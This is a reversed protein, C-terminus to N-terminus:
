RPRRLGQAPFHYDVIVRASYDARYVIFGALDDDVTKHPHHASTDPICHIFSNPSFTAAAGPEWSHRSGHHPVQVTGVDAWRMPGFHAQMEALTPMDVRLDGLLLMGAQEDILADHSLPSCCFHRDRFIGCPEVDSVLPRVLLCLSINNRQQSSKGFHKVYIARLADRWRRRPPQSLDHLRYSRMVVEVDAQVISTSKGSRRAVLVGASDRRFLDPQTSNYFMFEVPLGPAATPAAHSWLLMRPARSGGPTSVSKTLNFSSEGNDQDRDHPPRPDDTPGAPFPEPGGDVPPDGDSRPGGQVRLVTDVQGGLGRSTLWSVPDLQLAATSATCPDAGVAAACALSNGVDMYPLALVRVRRSRLLREVGNVHDDDFHSLVLLDVLDPWTEWAELCAIEADIRTTRRSGCDYVWSFGSNRGEDHALGNFFTGHGVANFCQHVHIVSM